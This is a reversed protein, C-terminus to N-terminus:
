FIWIYMYLVPISVSDKWKEGEWIDDDKPIGQIRNAFFEGDFEQYWKRNREEFEKECCSRVAKPEREGSKVASLSASWSVRRFRVSPTSYANGSNTIPCNLRQRRGRRQFNETRGCHSVIIGNKILFKHSFGSIMSPKMKVTEPPSKKRNSDRSYITPPFMDWLCLPCILTVYM